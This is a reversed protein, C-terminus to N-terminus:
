LLQSVTALVTMHTIRILGAGFGFGIFSSLISVENHVRGEGNTLFAIGILSGTGCCVIIGISFALWAFYVDESIALFEYSPTWFGLSIALYGGFLYVVFLGGVPLFLPISWRATTVFVNEISEAIRARLSKPPIEPGDSESPSSM